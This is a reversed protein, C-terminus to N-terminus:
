GGHLDREMVIAKVPCNKACIGCGKCIDYNFIPYGDKDLKVANEPCLQWCLRCKICKKKDRVPKFTRWVGTKLTKAEEAKIIPIGKVGRYKIQHEEIM